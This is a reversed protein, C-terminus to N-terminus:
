RGNYGGMICLGSVLGYNGLDITKTAMLRFHEGSEWLHWAVEM